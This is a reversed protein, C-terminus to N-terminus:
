QHYAHLTGDDTGGIFLWGDAVTPSSWTGVGTVGGGVQAYFVTSDIDSALGGIVQSNNTGWFVIGPVAVGDLWGTVVAPSSLTGGFFPNTDLLAGTLTDVMNMGVADGIYIMGPVGPLQFLSSPAIAPSSVVPFVLATTGNLTYPADATASWLLGGVEAWVVQGLGVAPSSYVGTATAYQRVPATGTASLRWLGQQAPDAFDVAGIWIKADNGLADFAASSILNTTVSNGVSVGAGTGDIISLPWFNPNGPTVCAITPFLVLGTGTLTPSALVPAALDRKWAPLGDSARFAYAIGEVGFDDSGGIFVLNNAIDVAPTGTAVFDPPIITPIAPGRGIDQSWVVAGTQANLCYLTANLNPGVAAAAGGAVIYVLYQGNLNVYVPSGMIQGDNAFFEWQENMLTVNLFNLDNEHLNVGSHRANMRWQPWDVHVTFIAMAAVDTAALGEADASATITHDGAKDPGISVSGPGFFWNPVVANQSFKGDKDTVVIFWLINDYMVRVTDNAPFGSGKVVVGTTAPGISPTVTLSAKSPPVANVTFPQSASLGSNLGKAAVTHAGVAATAPCTFAKDFVGSASATATTQQAGDFLLSVTEGAEYTTGHCSISTVGATGDGPSITLAPSLVNFSASATKHPNNTQTAVVSHPGVPAQAPVTFTATFEKTKGTNATFVTASLFVGLVTKNKKFNSGHVTVVTAGTGSTPTLTISPPAAALAPLAPLAVLLGLCACVAILRVIKKMTGGKSGFIKNGIENIQMASNGRFLNKGM